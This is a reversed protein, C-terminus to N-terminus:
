RRNGKMKPGKAPLPRFVQAIDGVLAKFRWSQAHPSYKLASLYASKVYLDVAPVSSNRTKNLSFFISYPQRGTEPPLMIQAVYTYSQDGKYITGHRMAEMVQPLQLSCDYREVDFAREEGRHTYRHHDGHRAPDFAETFCHCGFTIRVPIVIPQQSVVLDIPLTMQELHPFTYVKGEFSKNPFNSV